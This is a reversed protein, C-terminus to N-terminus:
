NGKTERPFIHNTPYQYDLGIRTYPLVIKNPVNNSYSIGYGKQCWEKVLNFNHSFNKDIKSLLQYKGNYYVMPDIGRFKPKINIQGKGFEVISFTKIKHSYEKFLKQLKVDKSKQLKTLVQKDVGFHLEDKTILNIDVARKLIKVFCDYIVANWESGWFEWTFDLSLMAFKKALVPETFFWKNHKFQLNEVIEKAEIKSIKELIVGTHINYQIRDACLSPLPSELAVYKPNDPDLESISINYKSIIKEIDMKKLFWLHITDQYSRRSNPQYFLNDGLHSFVTHSVDHLLGAIQEIKSVGVKQLLVFVGISHDYRSFFPMLELYPPPGSQDIEKIRQMAKSQILEEIIPDNVVSDGWVTHLVHEAYSSLCIIYNIIISFIIKKIM